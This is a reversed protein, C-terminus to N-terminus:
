NLALPVAVLNRQETIKCDKLHVQTMFLWPTRGIEDFNRSKSRLDLLAPYNYRINSCPGDAESSPANWLNQPHGWSILDNSVAYVVRRALGSKPDAPQNWVAIFLNRLPLYHVSGIAHPLNLLPFCPRRVPNTKYPDPFAVSFTKGDFARWSGSDGVNNTRFLCVGQRQGPIGTQFIFVYYFNNRKIINSPNFFGRNTKQEVDQRAWSAAVIPQQTQEFTTGGDNSSASTIVNYWCPLYSNAICRGPHTNARYENHVLAVVNRDDQAWTATIWQLDSHDEPHESQRGAFHVRCSRTFEEGSRTEISRTEYHSAILRTTGRIRFARVPADPYDRPNCAQTAHDFITMMSGTATFTLSSPGEAM